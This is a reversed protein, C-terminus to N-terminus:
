GSSTGQGTGQRALVLPPRGRGPAPRPLEGLSEDSRDAGVLVAGSAPLGSLRIMEGTAHIRSALSRGATIVPVASAAWTSIFEGGLAPDLPVLAILLDADAWAGALMQDAPTPEEPLPRLPGAPEVDGEAPVAVTLAAGAATVEYVGPRTAGALRAAPGGPWLDALVVRAGQQARSIAFTAVALAAVPASEVPVVALARGGGTPPAIAAHDLYSVLRQLGPSRGPDAVARRARRSTRVRGVSLGVPTGLARAVDDRRRLGGASLALVLVLGVGAALGAILGSMAYILLYKLRSHHVLAAPDLIKTGTIEAITNVPYDRVNQVLGFLSQTETKLSQTLKKTPLGTARAKVLNDNIAELTRQAEGVQFKLGAIILGEEQRLQSSRFALFQYALAEARRVAASASMARVTFRMIQNTVVDVTYTTMFWTESVPLRLRAMVRGAVARSEAMAQDTQMAAVPDEGPAHTILIQATAQYAPPAVKFLCLGLLVGGLAIAVWLRMRRRLASLLFPVSTLGAAFDPDGSRETGAQGTRAQDSDNM